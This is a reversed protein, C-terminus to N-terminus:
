WPPSMTVVVPTVQQAIMRDVDSQVLALDAGMAAEVWGKVQNFTLNAFPTFNGPDPPGAPQEGYSTATHGAGDDATLRWHISEVVNTLGAYSPFVDLKPFQWTYTTM